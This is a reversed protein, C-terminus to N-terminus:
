ILAKIIPYFSNAKNEGNLALSINKINQNENYENPYIIYIPLYQFKYNNATPLLLAKPIVTFELVEPTEIFILQTNHNLIVHIMPLKLDNYVLIELIKAVKMLSVRQHSNIIGSIQTLVLPYPTIYNNLSIQYLNDKNRKSWNYLKTASKLVKQVKKEGFQILNNM